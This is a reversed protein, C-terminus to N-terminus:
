RILEAVAGAAPATGASSAVAPRVAGAPWPYSGPKVLVEPSRGRVDSLTVLAGACADAGLRSWGAARVVAGATAGGDLLLRDVRASRLVAAAAAALTTLRAAPARADRRRVAPVLVVLGFAALAHRASEAAWSWDAGVTVVAAACEVEASPFASGRVWLVPGPAPPVPDDAGTVALGFRTRLLAAFFEAGGAPLDDPGCAAAAADLDATASVDPVTVADLVCGASRESLLSRVCATRAPYEPDRAFPTQDLPVGAVFYRGGRVCRGRSPNAPALVARSLGAARGAAAVEALVPGRLVSDTKKFVLVPRAALMAGAVAGVRVAAAAPPLSRTDTDVAVVDADAAPDPETQVEATLGHARAVAACEAAGSLDDALVVIM